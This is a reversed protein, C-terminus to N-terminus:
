LKQIEYDIPVPWHAENNLPNNLTHFDFEHQRVWLRTTIRLQAFQVNRRSFEVEVWQERLFAFRSEIEHWEGDYYLEVDLHRGSTLESDVHYRIKDCLVKVPLGYVIYTGDSSHENNEEAYTLEPPVSDDITNPVDVYTEDPNNATAPTTWADPYNIPLGNMHRYMLYSVTRNDKSLTRAAGFADRQVKQGASRRHINRPKTSCHLGSNDRTFYVGGFGGRIDTVGGGTKVLAM